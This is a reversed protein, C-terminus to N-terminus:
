WSSLCVAHPNSKTVLWNYYIM